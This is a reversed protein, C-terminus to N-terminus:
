FSLLFLIFCTRQYNEVIDKGTTPLNHFLPTTKIQHANAATADYNIEQKIKTVKMFKIIKISSYEMKINYHSDRPIPHSPVPMFQWTIPHSPVSFYTRHVLRYNEITM